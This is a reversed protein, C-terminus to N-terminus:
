LGPTPLRHYSSYVDMSAGETSADAFGGSVLAAGAPCTATADFTGGNVRAKTINTEVRNVTAHPVVTLTPSPAVTATASPNNVTPACGVLLLLALLALLPLLVGRRVCGTLCAPLLSRM